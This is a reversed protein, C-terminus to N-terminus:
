ILFLFSGISRWFSENAAEEPTAFVRLCSPSAKVKAGLEPPIERIGFLLIFTYVNTVDNSFDRHVELRTFMNIPLNM